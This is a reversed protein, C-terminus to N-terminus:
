HPPKLLSIKKISKNTKSYNKENINEKILKKVLSNFEVANM